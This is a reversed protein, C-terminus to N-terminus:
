ARHRRKLSAKVRPWFLIAAVMLASGFVAADLTLTLIHLVLLDRTLEALWVCLWVGFIAVPVIRRMPRQPRVPRRGFLWVGAGHLHRRDFEAVNALAWRITHRIGFLTM